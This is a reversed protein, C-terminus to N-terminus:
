EAATAGSENPTPLPKVPEKRPIRPDGMLLWGLLDARTMQWPQAQLFLHADKAHCDAMLEALRTVVPNETKDYRGMRDVLASVSTELNKLRNDMASVRFAINNVDSASAYKVDGRNEYLALVRNASDYLKTFQAKLGAIDQCEQDLKTGLTELAQIASTHEMDVQEGASIKSELKAFRDVEGELGRAELETRVYDVVQRMEKIARTQADGPMETVLGHLYGLKTRIESLQETLEETAGKANNIVDGVINVLSAYESASPPLRKLAELKLLTLTSVEGTLLAALTHRIGM